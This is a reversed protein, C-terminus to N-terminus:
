RCNYSTSLIRCLGVPLESWRHGWRMVSLMDRMQDELRMSHVAELHPEEIQDCTITPHKILNAGDM